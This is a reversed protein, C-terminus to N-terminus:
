KTGPTIRVRSPIVPRTMACVEATSHTGMTLPKSDPTVIRVRAVTMAQGLRDSGDHGRIGLIDKVQAATRIAEAAVARLGAADYTAGMRARVFGRHRKASREAAVGAAHVQPIGDSRDVGGSGGSVTVL